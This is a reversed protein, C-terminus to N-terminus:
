KSQEVILKESNNSVKNVESSVPYAESFYIATEGRFAPWEGENFDGQLWLNYHTKRIAYPMRDHINSIAKAAPMTIVSFTHTVEEQSNKWSEWIGALAFVGSEPEVIRYPVKESGSRMWEYYGDVAILCRRKRFANKYAPKEAITESRANIMKYGIRHDKAWFPILGWKMLEIRRDEVNTLVPLFHTPAVNYNPFLKEYQDREGEKFEAGFLQQVARYDTILTARGCM